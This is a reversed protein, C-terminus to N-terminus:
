SRLLSRASKQRPAPIKSYPVCQDLLPEGIRMRRAQEIMAAAVQEVKLEVFAAPRPCFLGVGSNRHLALKMERSFDTGSHCAVIAGRAAFDTYVFTGDPRDEKKLLISMADYGFQEIRCPDRHDYSKETLFFRCQECDKLGLKRAYKMWFRLFMQAEGETGPDNHELPSSYILGVHRAGQQVLLDLACQAMNELNMRVVNPGKVNVNYVVPIPLTNQWKMHQPDTNAVLLADLQSTVVTDLLANWTTGQKSNPREDLFIRDNLGAKHLQEQIAYVLTRGYAGREACWIGKTAYIGINKFQNSRTSVFTGLRPTRILYGERVLPTLARQVTPEQTTWAAAIELTSPIKDGPKFEGSELKQRLWHTIQRRTSTTRIPM